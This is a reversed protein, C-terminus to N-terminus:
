KGDDWFFKEYANQYGDAYGKQYARKYLDDLDETLVATYEKGGMIIKTPSDNM